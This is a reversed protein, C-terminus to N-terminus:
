MLLDIILDIQYVVPLNSLRENSRLYHTVTINTFASQAAPESPSLPPTSSRSFFGRTGIEAAYLFLARQQRHETSGLHETNGLHKHKTSLLVQERRGSVIAAAEEEVAVAAGVVAESNATAIFLPNM